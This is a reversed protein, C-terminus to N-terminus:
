QQWIVHHHFTTSAKGALTKGSGGADEPAPPPPPAPPPDRAGEGEGREGGEARVTLTTGRRRTAISSQYPSTSSVKTRGGKLPRRQRASHVVAAPAVCRPMALTAAM